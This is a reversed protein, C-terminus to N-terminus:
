RQTWLNASELDAMNIRLRKYTRARVQFIASPVSCDRTRTCSSRRYKLRKYQQGIALDDTLVWESDTSLRSKHDIHEPRSNSENSYTRAEIWRYGGQPVSWWFDFADNAM